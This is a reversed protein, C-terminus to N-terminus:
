RRRKPAQRRRMPFVALRDEAIGDSLSCIAMTRTPDRGHKLWVEGVGLRLIRHNLHEGGHVGVIRMGKKLRKPLVMDLATYKDVTPDLEFDIPKM